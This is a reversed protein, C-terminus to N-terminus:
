KWYTERTEDRASKFCADLMRHWLAAGEFDVLCGKVKEGNAIADYVEGVQGYAMPQAVEVPERIGQPGGDLEIYVEAGSKLAEPKYRFLNPPDMQLPVAGAEFKLSGREGTIVWTLSNMGSTTSFIQFTATTGSELEGHVSLSDFATVSLLGAHFPTTVMPFNAKANANLFAFEGLLFCTADLVHGAITTM